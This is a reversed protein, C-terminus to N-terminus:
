AGDSRHHDVGARIALLHSEFECSSTPILNLCHRLFVLGLALRLLLDPGFLM